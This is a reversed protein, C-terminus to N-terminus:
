LVVHSYTLCIITQSEEGEYNLYYSLVEVTPRNIIIFIKIYNRCKITVFTGIVYKNNYIIIFM